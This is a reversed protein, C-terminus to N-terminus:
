NRGKSGGFDKPVLSNQNEFAKHPAAKGEWAAPSWDIDAPGM